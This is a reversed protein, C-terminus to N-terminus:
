ILTMLFTTFRAHHNLKALLIQHDVADLAKQLDVFVECGISGDDFAKGINETIDILAHSTSHQQRFGVQLNYIIKNNLFAYFIKYM